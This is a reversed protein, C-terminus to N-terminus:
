SQLLCVVIAYFGTKEKASLVAAYKSRNHYFVRCHLFIRKAAALYAPKAM